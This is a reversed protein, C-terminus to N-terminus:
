KKVLQSNLNLPFKDQVAKHNITEIKNKRRKWGGTICNINWLFFKKIMTTLGSKTPTSMIYENFAKMSIKPMDNLQAAIVKM